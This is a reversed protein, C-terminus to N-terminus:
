KPQEQEPEPEGYQLSQTGPPWCCGIAAKKNIHDKGERIVEM